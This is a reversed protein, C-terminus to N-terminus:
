QKTRNSNFQSLLSMTMLPVIGPICEHLIDRTRFSFPFDFLPIYCKVFCDDIGKIACKDMNLGSQISNCEESVSIFGDLTSGMIYTIRPGIFFISLIILIFLLGFIPDANPIKMLVIHGRYRLLPLALCLLSFLCYESFDKYSSSIVLILIMDLILNIHILKMLHNRTM